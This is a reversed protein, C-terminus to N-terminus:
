MPNQLALVDALQTASIPGIHAMWGTVMALLAEERLNRRIAAGPTSCQIDCVFFIERFFRQCRKQPLGYTV